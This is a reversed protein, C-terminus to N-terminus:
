VLSISFTAGGVNILYFRFDRREESKPEEDLHRRTARRLYTYSYTTSRRSQEEMEVLREIFTKCYVFDDAYHCLDEIAISYNSDVTMTLTTADGHIQAVFFLQLLIRLLSTAFIM